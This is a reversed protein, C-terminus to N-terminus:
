ELGWLRQQGEGWNWVRGKKQVWNGDGINVVAAMRGSVGDQHDVLAKNKPKYENGHITWALFLHGSLRSRLCWKIQCRNHHRIKLRGFRWDLNESESGTLFKRRYVLYLVLLFKESLFPKIDEFESLYERVVQASTCSVALGEKVTQVHRIIGLVKSYSFCM